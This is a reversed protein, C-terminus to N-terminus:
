SNKKCKLFRREVEERIECSDLIYTVGDSVGYRYYKENMSASVDYVNSMVNDLFERAQEKQKKTLGEIYDEIGIKAKEEDLEEQETRTLCALEEIRSEFINDIINEKKEMSNNEGKKLNIIAPLNKVSLHTFNKDQLIM